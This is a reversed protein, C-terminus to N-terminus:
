SIIVRGEETETGIVKALVPLRLGVPFIAKCEMKSLSTASTSPSIDSLLKDMLNITSCATDTHQM